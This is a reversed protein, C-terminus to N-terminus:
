SPRWRSRREIDLGMFKAVLLDRLGDPLFKTIMALSRAGSGALYRSKPRPATLAHVVAEAM